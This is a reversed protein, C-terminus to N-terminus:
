IYFHSPTGSHIVALVNCVVSSELMKVMIVTTPASPRTPACQWPPRQAQAGSMTWGSPGAARALAPVAPPLCPLAVAWSDVCWRPM